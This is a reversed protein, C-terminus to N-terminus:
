FSPMWVSFHFNQLPWILSTFSRLISHSQLIFPLIRYYVLITHQLVYRLKKKVCFLRLQFHFREYFISPSTYMFFCNVCVCLALRWLKNTQINSVEIDHYFHYSVLFLARDIRRIDFVRFYMYNSTKLRITFYWVSYFFRALNIHAHACSYIM